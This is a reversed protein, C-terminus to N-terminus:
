IEELKKKLEELKVSGGEKSLIPPKDLTDLYKLLLQKYNKDRMNYGKIGGMICCVLVEGYERSINKTSLSLNFYLEFLMHTLYEKFKDPIGDTDLIKQNCQVLCIISSKIINSNEHTCDVSDLEQKVNETDKEILEIWDILNSIIEYLIRSYVNPFEKDRQSYKNIEYNKCIKDVFHSYYYLWMHWDIKQYIAETLMIDFLRVGLFIPDKLPEEPDHILREQYENYIDREKRGQECLIDIVTDGIPKWIELEKALNDDSFLTYIIKNNEPIDYRHPYSLNQNNRIETYLISNTNRMLSAMYLNSFRGRFYLDLKEDKIIRLGFYPKIKAIQDIFEHNLLRIKISDFLNNKDSSILLSEYNEDILELASAFHRKSILEDLKELFYEENKIPVRKGLFKCLFIGFLLTALLIQLLDPIFLVKINFGQFSTYYNECHISIFLSICFLVIIGIASLILSVKELKGFSYGIRLKKHEPLTSYLAIVVGLITLIVFPDIM